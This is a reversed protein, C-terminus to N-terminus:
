RIPPAGRSALANGAYGGALLSAPSGGGVAAAAAVVVVGSATTTTIGSGTADARAVDNHAQQVIGATAVEGAESASSHTSRLLYQVETTATTGSM